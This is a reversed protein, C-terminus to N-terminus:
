ALEKDSDKNIVVRRLLRRSNLDYLAVHINPPLACADKTEAFLIPFGVRGIRRLNRLFGFDYDDVIVIFGIRSGYTRYWSVVTQVHATALNSAM